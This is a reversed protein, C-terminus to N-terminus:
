HEQDNLILGLNNHAEAFDPQIRVADRYCTVAAELKGQEKLANGLNNHAQPFNPRLEVARRFSAVAGDLDRQQVLVIGLSNPTAPLPPWGGTVRLTRDYLGDGPGRNLCAGTRGDRRVM